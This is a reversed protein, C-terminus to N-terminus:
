NFFLLIKGSYIYITNRKAIFDSNNQFIVAIASQFYQMTLNYIEIYIDSNNSLFLGNFGIGYAFLSNVVINSLIVTINSNYEMHFYDLFNMAFGKEDAYLSIGM